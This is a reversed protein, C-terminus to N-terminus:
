SEATYLGIYFDSGGVDVKIYGAQTSVTGTSKAVHGDDPLKAFHTWQLTSGAADVRIPVVDGTVTQSAMNQYARLAYVDGGITNGATQSDTLDAEFAGFDGSLTLGGGKLLPQGQVAVVSGGSTVASGFRPSIQAGVVDTTGNSTENPKSQFGIDTGSASAYNRSNLLIPKSDTATQLSLNRGAVGDIIAGLRLAEVYHSLKLHSSM